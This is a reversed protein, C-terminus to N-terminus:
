TGGVGRLYAEPNQAQHTIQLSPVADTLDPLTRLNDKTLDAGGVVDIAIPTKQLDTDGTHTATVVVESLGTDTSAVDAAPAAGRPAIAAAGLAAGAMISIRSM